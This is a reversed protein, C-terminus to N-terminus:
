KTRVILIQNGYRVIDGAKIKKGRITCIEGNLLIEENQILMKAEGGTSVISAYKLLADLKIYEDRISIQSVGPLKIKQRAEQEM